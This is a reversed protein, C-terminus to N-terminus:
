RLAEMIQEAVHEAMVRSGAPKFHVNKPQQLEALRPLVLAYLDNVAVGQRKMIKLAVANYREAEGVERLPGAPNEPYPTTTAFILKAGTRQLRSVIAEMNARYPDLPIQIHGDQKSTTNKGQANVYKLDHLGHNFHIVDWATNGLWADLHALGFGSHQANGPNHVVRAQGQLMEKLPKMYGMSISDGIILVQPLSTADASGRPFDQPVPISVRQTAAWEAGRLYTIRFSDKRIQEVAHGLVTHFVRGKGHTITMLMPEEHGTGKNERPSHATALITVNLAPGRLFAYMEDPGHMFTLPLGKTIPHEADRITIEFAEQKGHGGGKGKSTDRIVSGTKDMYLYPGSKENRGGWGGIGIMENFAKWHPWANDAAHYIM